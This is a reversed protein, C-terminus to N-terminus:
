LELDAAVPFAPRDAAFGAPVVLNPVDGLLLAFLKNM